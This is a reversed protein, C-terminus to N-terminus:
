AYDCYITSRAFCKDPDGQLFQYTFMRFINSDAAFVTEYVREHSEPTEVMRDGIRRIRVVQKIEPFDKVLMEGVVLGQRRTNNLGEM